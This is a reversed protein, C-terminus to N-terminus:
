NNFSCNKCPQKGDTVYHWAINSGPTAQQDEFGASACTDNLCLWWYKKAGDNHWGDIADIMGHQGAKTDYTLRNQKMAADMADKVTIKSGTVPISDIVKVSDARYVITLKVYAQVQQAQVTKTTDTNGGPTNRGGCAAILM